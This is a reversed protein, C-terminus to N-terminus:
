SCTTSSVAAVLTVASLILPSHCAMKKKNIFLIYSRQVNASLSSLLTVFRPCAVRKPGAGTIVKQELICNFNKSKFLNPTVQFTDLHTIGPM